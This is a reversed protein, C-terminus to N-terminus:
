MRLTKVQKKEPPPNINEIYQILQIVKDDTLAEGYKVLMEYNRIFLGKRKMPTGNDKLPNIELFLMPARNKTAPVKVINVGPIPTELKAWDEGNQLHDELQAYVDAM